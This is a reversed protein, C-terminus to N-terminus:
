GAGLGVEEESDVGGPGSEEGVGAARTIKIGVDGNKAGLVEGTGESEALSGAAAMMGTAGGIDDNKEFHGKLTM